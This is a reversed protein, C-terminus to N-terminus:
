KKSKLAAKKAAIREAELDFEGSKLRAFYDRTATIVKPALLFTGILNPVLMLGLMSDSFNLVPSLKTIAAGVLIMAVFTLKFPLIMRDGFLYQTCTEGYFSWSVITSFAFFFAAIPLFWTGFGGIVQDFAYATLSIGSVDLYVESGSSLVPRIERDFEERKEADAPIEVHGIIQPYSDKDKERLVKVVEFSQRARSLKQEPKSESQSLDRRQELDLTVFLATGQHFHEEAELTRDPNDPDGIAEIKLEVYDKIKGNDDDDAKSIIGVEVVNAIYDRQHSNTILVVLATMTCIVITDIFPGLAAVVGERIPEDTKAAAHAIPASGLGAENSFCARKVGLNIVEKTVVGFFAGEAATTSFADNFISMLLAPVDSLHTIIVFLAGLVYVLCMTPVIKSAVAGIRKIGGIIVIFSLVFLIAGAAMRITSTEFSGPSVSQVFKASIEAVQNSQFMNGAGLSALMGLVAFLIALPKWKKGLGIEIYYMPGGRYTGTSDQERYMTALSCTMFKTAMGLFGVVWMWFVAGAGGLAVATAVGSINGLGITASLATCLAQFHSINGADDPDDYKGRVVSFGHRLAKVQIGLTWLTFILGMGLLTYALPESWVISVFGDDAGLWEIFAQM